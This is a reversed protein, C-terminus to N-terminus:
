QRSLFGNFSTVARSQLIAQTDTLGSGISSYNIIGNTYNSTAENGYVDGLNEVNRNFLRYELVSTHAISNVAQNFIGNKQLIYSDSLSKRNILLLGTTGTAMTTTQSSSTFSGYNISVRTNDTQRFGGLIPVGSVTISKLYISFHNSLYSISTIPIFTRAFQNVGNAQSGNSNHTMGNPFTLRYAVDLDRPDNLNFKHTGATGGIFPYQAKILSYTSIAREITVLYNSAFNQVVSPVLGADEIAKLYKRSSTDQVTIIKGGVVYFGAKSQAFCVSILLAWIILIRKM